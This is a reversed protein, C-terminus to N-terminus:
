GGTTTAVTAVASSRKIAELIVFATNNIRQTLRDITEQNDSGARSAQAASNLLLYSLFDSSDFATDRIQGDTAALAPNKSEKMEDLSKYNYDYSEFFVVPIGAEDFPTHDSRHLTWERYIATEGSDGFPVRISSQNTLLNYQNNTYLKYEFFVDTAEYLKRRLEYNKKNGAMVSNQGAHVYVEDGAYIGDINYMADTRALDADGLGQVFAKAGAYDATGAGFAVLVIDHALKQGKLQRALTFLVGVGSANAHIGDFDALTPTPFSDTDGVLQRKQDDTATESATQAAVAAARAEEGQAATISVDYHAGIIIQRREKKVTGSADTSEVGAGEIRVFLNASPVSQGEANTYTFKQTTTKYGLSKFEAALFDLAGAEIDSGASRYPYKDALELALDSGYSGYDAVKAESPGAGILGSCSSLSLALILPLIIAPLRHKVAQKKLM